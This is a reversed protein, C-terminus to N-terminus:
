YVSRFTFSVKITNDKYIVIKDILKEVIIDISNKDSKFKDYMKKLEKKGNEANELEIVEKLIKIAENKLFNEQEKQSIFEAMGIQGMAKKLYLNKINTNHFEISRKLNAIKLNIGERSLMKKLAMSIIKQDRKRDNILDNLLNVVIRQLKSISITRNFCLNRAYVKTCKFYYNYKESRGQKRCILMNQGCEGCQVLNIFLGNYENKEERNIKRLKSNALNFLEKSIIKPHCDCIVEWDAISITSRKKQHYDQKFSKRKIIEGIYTRNKLIRYIIRDSWESYYINKKSLTMNKYVVPPLIGDINLREAVEKRSKGSAIENFIRKIVFSVANDIELSRKNGIKKIKYGYPPLAGIFQGNSTKLDAIQKRKIAADKVYRDNILSKIQIIVEQHNSDLDESDYQDNIAIYRVNNKVFYEDIYYITEIFNRGLRSIDKTIVMEIIGKEIDEKLSLFGPRDFSIGSYGDDIYEKDIVVGMSKAYSKILKLQNNISSSFHDNRDRDEKSIRVYSVINRKHNM